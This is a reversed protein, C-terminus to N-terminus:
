EYDRGDAIANLAEMLMRAAQPQQAQGSFGIWVRVEKAEAPSLSMTIWRTAGDVEISAM